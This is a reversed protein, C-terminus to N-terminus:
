GFDGDDGLITEFVGKPKSRQPQTAAAANPKRDRTLWNSAFQQWNKKLAKAGSQEHCWGRMRKIQIPIESPHWGHDIAERYNEDSLAFDDPFPTAESVAKPKKPKSPKPPTTPKEDPLGLDLPITKAEVEEEVEEERADLMYSRAELKQTNDEPNLSQNKETQKSLSPNGGMKGNEQNKRSKNEEKEMRRSYIVGNKKVSYVGNELLEALCLVVHDLPIGSLSSLQEPRVPRGQVTLQGRPESEHMICVMEMWVGRAAAGCMKLASDAKWDTPYFKMWPNKNM